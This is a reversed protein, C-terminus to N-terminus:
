WRCPMGVGVYALCITDAVLGGESLRVLAVDLNKSLQVCDLPRTFNPRILEIPRQDQNSTPLKIVTLKRNSIAIGSEEQSCGIQM